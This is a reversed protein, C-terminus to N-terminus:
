ARRFRRAAFAGVLVALLAFPWWPTSAGQTSVPKPAPRPTTAPATRLAAAPLRSAPIPDVGRSIRRLIRSTDPLAATWVWGGGDERTAIIDRAPVYLQRVTVRSRGGEGISVRLRVFGPGNATPGGTAGGLDMLHTDRAKSTVNTCGDAGCVVVKVVGKAPAAAPLALAALTVLLAIRATM